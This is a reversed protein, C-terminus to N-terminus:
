SVAKLLLGSYLANGSDQTNFASLEMRFYKMEPHIRISFSVFRFAFDSLPSVYSM